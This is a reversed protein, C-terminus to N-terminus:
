GMKTEFTIGDEIYMMTGAEGIVTEGPDLEVEVFQLDDGTITYDIEHSRQM